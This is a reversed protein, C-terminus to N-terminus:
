SLLFLEIIIGVTENDRYCKLQIGSKIEIAIIPTKYTVHIDYINVNHYHNVSTFKDYVHPDVTCKRMADPM